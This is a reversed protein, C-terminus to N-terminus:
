NEIDRETTEQIESSSQNNADREQKERFGKLAEIGGQAYMLINMKIELPLILGLGKIDSHKPNVLCADALVDLLNGMQKFAIVNDDEEIQKMTDATKGNFMKVVETLLENPIKDSSVMELMDPMRVEAVFPTGDEFNGLEVIETQKINKLQELSTIQLNNSM